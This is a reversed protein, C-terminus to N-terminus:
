SIERVTQTGIENGLLFGQLRRSGEETQNGIAASRLGHLRGTAAATGEGRIASHSWAGDEKRLNPIARGRFKDRRMPKRGCDDKLSWVGIQVDRQVLRLKSIGNPFCRM